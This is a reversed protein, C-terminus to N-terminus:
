LTYGLEKARVMSLSGQKEDKNKTRNYGITRYEVYTGTPIVIEYVLKTEPDQFHTGVKLREMEANLEVGIAKVKEKASEYDKVLSLFKESM